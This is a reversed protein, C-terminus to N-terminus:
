RLWSLAYLRKTLFKLGAWSFASWISFIATPGPPPSGLNMSHVSTMMFAHFSWVHLQSM